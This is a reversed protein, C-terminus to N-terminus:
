IVIEVEVAPQGDAETQWGGDTHGLIDEIGAPTDWFTVWLLHTTHISLSFYSKPDGRSGRPDLPCVPYGM